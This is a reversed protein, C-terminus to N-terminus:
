SELWSLVAQNWGVPGCAETIQVNNHNVGPIANVPSRIVVPRDSRELLPVDNQGDGLAMTQVTSQWLKRYYDSLFALADGKDSLGLLHVFRGGRIVQLQYPAVCDGFRRLSEDSDEWLLPESFQRCKAREAKELTLGTCEAVQEPTMESFGKFQFEHQVKLAAAVDLITSLPVPNLSAYEFECNWSEVRFADPLLSIDIDGARWFIGAGNEVIFPFNNGLEVRLQVVESATKSTTLIWPIRQENLGGIAPLAAQFEYTHHDLLSGDLDTFLLKRM